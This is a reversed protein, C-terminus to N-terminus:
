ASFVYTSPDGDPENFGLVYTINAGAKIQSQVDSLFTSSNGTGWLMPVFQLKPFNAFAPSPKSGYNYYWTLDSTPSDWNADDQPYKESPIYVLGRKTSTLPSQCYVISPLVTLATWFHRFEM